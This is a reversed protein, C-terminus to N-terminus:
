TVLAPPPPGTPPPPTAYTVLVTRTASDLATGIQQAVTAATNKLNSLAATIQPVVVPAGPIATVVGAAPGGVFPVPPSLWYAQIGVGYAQAVTAPTGGPSGMAATLPAALAQMQTPPIVPLGPTAVGKRAYKDYELAIKQSTTAGDPNMTQFVATLGAILDAVVLPM